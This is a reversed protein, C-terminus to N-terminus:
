LEFTLSAWLSMWDADSTAPAPIMQVSKIQWVGRKPLRFSVRGNADSRAQLRLSPDDRFIATVLAGPLPRSDFLMRVVVQDAHLVNTLPVIEYPFGLPQDFRTPGKGAVILAKACRSFLERSPKAADGRAARLAIIRELGEDRLYQEFKAAPLEVRSPRSRYGIVAGGPREVRLYGAPDQNDFGGIQREGAGDRVVFSDILAASRPVADGMFDQGVRLSATVTEGVAPRFTSPEIWFDHASGLAPACVLFVTFLFLKGRSVHSSIM